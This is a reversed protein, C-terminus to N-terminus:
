DTKVSSGELQKYVKQYVEDVTVAKISHRPNSSDAKFGRSHPEVAVLCDPRAYPAVRAPNSRGFIMVLPTGLAAAIHGAGTDNSVVLRAKKLIAALQRISTLGALNVINTHALTNLKDIVPRESEAGTTVIALNFKSSIRDALDAFRNLPWCKDGHASSPVLVAYNEPDVGHSGLLERASDTAAPEIPLVFKVATESAGASAVIKLYYDVLHITDHEQPVKRTYFIHAGERAATMGFRNACGSLWGLAATRFLGQLDIVADFKARRLRLVLSVLAAFARPNHLAKGLFKRDFLIIEDLQPHNEILPAFDTRILWSIKADPLSTRLASLAPLALVVDGLSSPKIILINKPGSLM